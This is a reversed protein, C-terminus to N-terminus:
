FASLMLSNGFSFLLLFRYGKVGSLSQSSLFPIVEMFRVAIRVAATKSSAPVVVSLM